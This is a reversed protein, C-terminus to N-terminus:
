NVIFNPDNQKLVWRSNFGGRDSKHMSSVLWAPQGNFTGDAQVLWQSGHQNIRNKGHRTKGSLTLWQWDSDRLFNRKRSIM